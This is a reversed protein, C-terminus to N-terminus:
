SLPAASGFKHLATVRAHWTVVCLMPLQAWGWLMPVLCQQPAFAPCARELVVVVSGGVRTGM